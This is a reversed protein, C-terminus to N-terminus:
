YKGRGKSLATRDLMQPPEEMWGYKIMLNGGESAFNFIDKAHIFMKPPLDKRLSFSIGVASSGLGFSSLLSTNYMMLKDSFPSVIANTAIGASSTPVSIDSDMLIEGFKAVINKALEKGRFFYKRVEKEQAVQAFGTMLKMGTINAEIGQFLYAVEVTNLPRRHGMVKFSARYDQEEAFEVHNPVNVAPSKQIVGKQLLFQTTKECFEEAFETCRRYLEMIDKRYSMSIHLSHLGSAIKTMMRLYMIEFIDDFLKPAEHNIDNETFGLPVAAGEQKFINRIENVFDTEQKQFSQLIATAEPDQNNTVFSEMVRVMMTKKQYVIWLTALESSTIPIRGTSM